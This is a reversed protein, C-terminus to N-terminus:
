AGAAGRKQLAPAFARKRPLNRLRELRTMERVIGRKLSNIVSPL